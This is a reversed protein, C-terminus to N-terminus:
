QAQLRFYRQPDSGIPVTYPSVVANIKNNYPGLVNTAWAITYTGPGWNFVLNTGNSVAWNFAPPAPPAVAPYLQSTPVVDKVQSPSDWSLALDANGTNEFYEVLIDQLNTTLPLTGSHEVVGSQNVWSDIVLQGNVWLRLGDDNTSYFTYPQNWEGQIQGVWRVTFHDTNVLSPFNFSADPAGNLWNFAIQQDLNTWSPTGLFPATSLHNSYYLGLLGTGTGIVQNAVDVVHLTVNSSTISGLSNTILVSYVGADATQANPISLNADTGNAVNVGNHRWQYSIPTSCPAIPAATVSFSATDGLNVVLDSPQGSIEAIPEVTLIADRTLSCVGDSVVVSYTGSSSTRVNNTAFSATTAGAINNGNFKWQFTYASVGNTPASFSVSDGPCNTQDQLYGVTGISHGNTQGLPLVLMDFYIPQTMDIQPYSGSTGGTYLRVWNGTATNAFQYQVFESNTGGSANNTSVSAINPPNILMGLPFGAANPTVFLVSDGPSHDEFDQIMNTGNSLNDIYIAFPGTDTLDDICLAFCELEAWPMRDPTTQGPWSGSWISSQPATRPDIKVTQWCTSPQVVIGGAPASGNLGTAQLFYLGGGTSPGAAGIPGALGGTQRMDLSIKVRPNAGGGVLAGSTPVCGEQGLVTQTAMVQAGKVLANTCNVVNNGDLIGTTLMGIMTPAGTGIKQYVTVATANTVGTVTVNTTGAAYPGVTPVPATAICNQVQTFRICDAYSRLNAGSLYTFMVTPHLQGPSNTIYGVFGWKNAGNATQFAATQSVSLTGNTTSVAMLLDSSSNSTPVTVEIIWTAGQVTDNILQCGFGQGVTLTSATHFFCGARTPLGSQGSLGTSTSYVTGSPRIEFWPATWNTTAAVRSAYIFQAKASTGILALLGLLALITRLATPITGPMFNKIRM